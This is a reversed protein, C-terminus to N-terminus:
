VSAHAAEELAQTFDRLIFGMQEGTANVIRDSGGVAEYAALVDAGLAAVKAKPIFRRLAQGPQQSEQTLERIKGFVLAARGAIGGNKAGNRAPFQGGNTRAKPPEDAIAAQELYRRFQRLNPSASAGNGVYERLAKGLQSPTLTTHGAMGDLSALMEARWTEVHAVRQLTAALAQRDAVSNLRSALPDSDPAAGSSTTTTTEKETDAEAETHHHGAIDPSSARSSAPSQGRQLAAKAKAGKRGNEALRQSREVQENWIGSLKDNYLRGNRETFQARVLPGLRKWRTTLRSIQALAGNDDPVSPEVSGDGWAVCLLRMFAGEQEPLMMSTGEGALWDRAYLPFWPLEIM